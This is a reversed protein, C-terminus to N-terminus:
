RVSAALVSRVPAKAPMRGPNPSSGAAAPGAVYGPPSGTGPIQSVPARHSGQRAAGGRGSPLPAKSGPDPPLVERRDLWAECTPPLAVCGMARVSRGHHRTAQGGARPLGCRANRRTSEDARIDSPGASRHFVDSSLFAGCSHPQPSRRGPNLRLATPLLSKLLHEHRGPGDCRDALRGDAAKLLVNSRIPITSRKEVMRESGSSSTCM